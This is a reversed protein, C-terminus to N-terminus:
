RPRHCRGDLDSGAEDAYPQHAPSPDRGAVGLQESWLPDTSPTSGCALLVRWRVLEGPRTRPRSTTWWPRARRVQARPRDLVVPHVRHRGRSRDGSWTPKPAAADEPVGLRAFLTRAADLNAQLIARDTERLNGTPLAEPVRLTQILEGSYSLNNEEADRMKSPQTVKMVSHTRVRVVFETPTLRDREYRAVQSRLDAEATALDHFYSVLEKTSYLRTLDVYRGRYGFWRAMQLLTDYYLTTRVYFSVLLGEITLGRSLKNGGILVAKLTPEADFDM